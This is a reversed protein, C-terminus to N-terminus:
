LRSRGTKLHIDLIVGKDDSFDKPIEPNLIEVERIPLAPKMVSTLLSILLAKNKEDAFIIKFVVDLTPDLFKGHPETLAM